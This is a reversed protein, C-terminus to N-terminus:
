AVRAVLSTSFDTSNLCSNYLSIDTTLSSTSYLSPFTCCSSPNATHLLFLLVFSSLSPHPLHTFFPFFLHLLGFLSPSFFSASCWHPFLPFAFSTVSSSLFTQLVSFSFFLLFSSFVLFCLSSLHLLNILVLSFLKFTSHPNSSTRTAWQCINCNVMSSTEPGVAGSTCRM